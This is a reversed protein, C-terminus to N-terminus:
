NYKLFSICHLVYLHIRDYKSINNFNKFLTKLHLLRFAKFFSHKINKHRVLFIFIEFKKKNPVNDIIIIISIEFNIM